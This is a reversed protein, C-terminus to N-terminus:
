EMQELFGKTFHYRSLDQYARAGVCAGTVGRVEGGLCIVRFGKQSLIQAQLLGNTVYTAKKETLYDVMKLTTSGADIYVIDNEDIFQSAYKGIIDKEELSELQRISLPNEIVFNTKKIMMAGGHIRKLLGQSDLDVLDRRITSESAKTIDVLDLVTLRGKKKLENLILKHRKETIM